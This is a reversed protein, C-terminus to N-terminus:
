LQRRFVKVFESQAVYKSIARAIEFAIKEQYESSLLLERERENSLFGIECLAAPLNVARLVAFKALKIGRFLTESNESFEVKLLKAFSYSESLIVDKELIDVAKRIKEKLAKIDFSMDKLTPRFNDKKKPLVYIEVGRAKTALSSNVHLSLFLVGKLEMAKRARDSFSLFKDTERTLVINIPTNEFYKKCKKAINLVIDKEYYKSYYTGPDKGGHGPDIIVNVEQTLEKFLEQITDPVEAVEGSFVRRGTKLVNVPDPMYFLGSEKTEEKTEITREEEELLKHVTIKVSNDASYTTVDYVNIGTLIIVMQLTNELNRLQIKKVENSEITFEHTHGIYKAGKFEVVVYDLELHKTLSPSVSESFKMEIVERDDKSIFKLRTLYIGIDLDRVASEDTMEVYSLGELNNTNEEKLGAQTELEQTAISETSDKQIKENQKSIFIDSFVSEFFSLPAFISNDKIFPVYKLKHVNGNVMVTPHSIVMRIMIGKGDLAVIQTREYFEMRLDLIEAIDKVSVFVIGNKEICAVKKGLV